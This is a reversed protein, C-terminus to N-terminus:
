ESKLEDNLQKITKNYEDAAAAAADQNAKAIAQHEDVYAKMCDEYRKTERNFRKMAFDDGRMAAGPAHPPADCQPKAVQPADAAHAVCAAALAVAAFLTRMM